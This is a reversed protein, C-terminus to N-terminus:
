SKDCDAGNVVPPRRGPSVMASGQRWGYPQNGALTLCNIGTKKMKIGTDRDIRFQNFKVQIRINRDGPM